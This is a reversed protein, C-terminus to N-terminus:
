EHDDFSWQKIRLLKELEGLDMKSTSQDLKGFRKLKKYKLLQNFTNQSLAFPKHLKAVERIMENSVCRYLYGRLNTRVSAKNKLGNMLGIYGAQRADERLEEPIHKIAVGIIDEHEMYDGLIAFAPTACNLM